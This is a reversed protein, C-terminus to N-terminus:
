SPPAGTRARERALTRERVADVALSPPPVTASRAFRVLEQFHQAEIPAADAYFHRRTPAVTLLPTPMCSACGCPGEIRAAGVAIGSAGYVDAPLSQWARASGRALVCRTFQARRPAADGDVDVDDRAVVLVDAGAARLEELMAADCADLSRKDEFVILCPARLAGSARAVRSRQWEAVYAYVPLDNFTCTESCLVVDALEHYAASNAASASSGTSSSNFVVVLLPVDREACDARAQLIWRQALRTKGSNPPGVIARLAQLGLDKLV